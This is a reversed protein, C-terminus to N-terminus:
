TWDDYKGGKAPLALTSRKPKEAPKVMQWGQELTQRLAAISETGGWSEFIKLKRELFKPKTTWGNAKRDAVWEVWVERFEPFDM